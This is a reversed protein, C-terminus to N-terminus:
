SEILDAVGRLISAIARERPTVGGATPLSAVEPVVAAGTLTGAGAATRVSAALLGRGALHAPRLVPTQRRRKGFAALVADHFEQNTASGLSTAFLPIAHRTFDGQGKSEWAVETPLCAGFFVGRERDGAPTAASRTGRKAKFAKVADEDLVVFRPKADDAEPVEDTIARQAGGSHCSDFFITLSVDEPLLDWIQGLDDDLLLNGKRFDVPCIAEDALENGEGDEEKEDGDLDDVFTGHGAFQVVLVDGGRSSVVLDQIREVMEERTADQDLLLDVEFDAARLTKAWLRADAVCGALEDDGPYSDIGICLAKRAHTEPVQAATAREDWPEVGRVARTRPFPKALEDRGLIRRALSEMTAPDDDFGGHSISTSSTRPGGGVTKSWIVEAKEGSGAKAFLERLVEDRRVCEQLGLIDADEEPELAARILYLLSKKYARMCTDDKEFSEKMTFMTLAEIQDLTQKRLVRERFEDVRIAPALLNLSAISPVGARLLEPVLHSHFISGASHGVAHVAIRGADPSEELYKALRRAFYRAGGGPGSALEATRKMAGWTAQGRLGRLAKEIVFDRADDLGRAAFPLSDKIADWLSELMGTEWVFQVPFCDNAKWWGVQKHAVGLGSAKGVLGGHAHIVLPMTGARGELFRPLHEEFIADVDAETTQFTKVSSPPVPDGLALKGDPINVVHPRLRDLQDPTLDVARASSATTTDATTMDTGEQPGTPPPTTSARSARRRRGLRAEPHAYVTYALWSLDGARRAAERAEITAESMTAGADLREYFTEVFVRAPGDGVSWLCGVFAGVGGRLFTEAFGGTESRQSPRREPAQGLRCANLVVMPGPAPLRQETGDPLAQRLDDLSYAVRSRDGPPVVGGDPPVFDALLMERVPPDIADDCRGHGAFHLLDVKGSGLLEALGAATPPSIETSRFRALSSRESAAHRLVLEEEAYSPILHFAKGRRLPLREPHRTNYVWRVLGARGLFGLGGPDPAADRGDLHVLEWPIDTEGSTVITLGELDQRHARLSELLAAPLVRDALRVGIEQLSTHFAASRERLSPIRRHLTWATDLGEFVERLVASKDAVLHEHTEEVGRLVLRFSLSSLTGVLNEDVVLTRTSLLPSVGPSVAVEAEGIGPEGTEVVASAPLIRSTLRLTALPQPESQRVVVQVEGLGEEAARLRFTTEVEPEGPPPLRLERRGTERRRGRGDLEFRRRLVTVVLPADPDVVILQEDHAKGVDVSVEGRSLRVVVEVPEDLRVVPPMSAGVEAFERRTPARTPAGEARPIGRSTVPPAPEPPPAPEAAVDMEPAISKFLRDAGLEPFEFRPARLGDLMETLDRRQERLVGLADTASVQESHELVVLRRESGARVRVVVVGAGDPALVAPAPGDTTVTLKRSRRPSTTVKVTGGGDPAVVHIRLVTTVPFRGVSGIRQQEDEVDVLLQPPSSILVRDDVAETTARDEM